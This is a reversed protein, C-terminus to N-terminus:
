GAGQDYDGIRQEELGAREWPLWVDSEQDM